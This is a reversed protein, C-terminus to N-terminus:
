AGREQTLKGNEVVQDNIQGLGMYIITLAELMRLEDGRRMSEGILRFLSAVTIMGLGDAYKATWRAVRSLTQLDGQARATEIELLQSKLQSFFERSGDRSGYPPFANDYTRASPESQEAPKAQNLEAVIQAVQKRTRQETEAAEIRNSNALNLLGDLIKVTQQEATEVASLQQKMAVVAASLENVPNDDAKTSASISLMSELSDLGAQAAPITVERTKILRMRSEALTGIEDKDLIVEQDAPMLEITLDSFTGTGFKSDFTFRGAMRKALEQATELRLGSQTKTDTIRQLETESLLASENQCLITLRGQDYNAQVVIHAADDFNVVQNILISLLHHLAAPDGSVTPLVSTARYKITSIHHNARAENIVNLLVEALNFSVPNDAVKVNQALIIQDKILDLAPKGKVTAEEEEKGTVVKVESNAKTKPTPEATQAPETTEHHPAHEAPKRYSELAQRNRIFYFVVAGAIVALTLFIAAYLLWPTSTQQPEQPQISQKEQAPPEAVEPLAVQHQIPEVEEAQTAVESSEQLNTKPATSTSAEATMEQPETPSELSPSDFSTEVGTLTTNTTLPYGLELSISEVFTGLVPAETSVWYQSVERLKRPLPEFEFGENSLLRLRRQASPGLSLYVGASVRGGFDGTRIVVVDSIGNSLLEALLDQSGEPGLFRSVIIYDAPVEAPRTVIQSPQALQESYTAAHDLTQFPGVETIALATVSTIALSCLTVLKCLLAATKPQARM